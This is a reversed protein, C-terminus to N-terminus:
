PVVSLAELIEEVPRGNLMRLTSAQKSSAHETITKGGSYSLWRRALWGALWGAM